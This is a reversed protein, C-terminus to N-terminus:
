LKKGRVKLQAPFPIYNIVCIFKDPMGMQVNQICIKDKTCTYNSGGNFSVLSSNYKINLKNIDLKTHNNDVCLTQDPRGKVVWSVLQKSPPEVNLNGSISQPILQKNQRDQSVDYLIVYGNKDVPCTICVDDGEFANYTIQPDLVAKIHLTEWFEKNEIRQKYSTCLVTTILCVFLIKQM